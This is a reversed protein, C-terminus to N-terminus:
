VYNKEIMELRKVATKMARIIENLDRLDISGRGSGIADDLERGAWLAASAAVEMSAWDTDSWGDYNFVRM